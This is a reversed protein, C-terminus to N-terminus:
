YKKLHNLIILTFFIKLFYFKLLSVYIYTIYLMVGVTVGVYIRKLALKLTLNIGFWSFSWLLINFLIRCWWEEDDNGAVDTMEYEYWVWTM